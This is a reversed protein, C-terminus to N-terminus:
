GIFGNLNIKWENEMNENRKFRLKMWEFFYDKCFGLNEFYFGKEFGYDKLVYKWLYCTTKLIQSMNPHKSQM